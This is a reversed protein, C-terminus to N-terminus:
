LKPILNRVFQILFSTENKHHELLKFYESKWDVEDTTTKESYKKVKIWKYSELIEQKEISDM